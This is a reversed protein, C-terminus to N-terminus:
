DELKYDTVETNGMAKTISVVITKGNDFNEKVKKFIESDINMKLDDKCESGDLYTYGGDEEISVLDYEAKDVFPIDVNHTSPTHLEYAKGTFIDKSLCHVKAHGHKGTKSVTVSIIKCPFGKIVVYGGKRLTGARAPKVHGGEDDAQYEEESGSSYEESDSM